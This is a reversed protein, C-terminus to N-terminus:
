VERKDDGQLKGVCEYLQLPKVKGKVSISELENLKYRAKNVESLREQLSHSIIIKKNLNECVSEIRSATNVTDSIVTDDLRNEEGITGVIMKGYHIGIRPIINQGKNNNKNIRESCKAIEIATEIADTESLPFLAMFGGSLFKSVFGNHKKIIPSISELYHNFLMFHDEPLVSTENSNFNMKSFMITMEISSHDGLQINTISDKNLLKLFEKPVFRLYAENLKLLNSSIEETDKYIDNQISALLILQIFIFIVLFFPFLPLPLFSRVKTYITDVIGGIILTGCSILYYIIHTKKKLLNAIIIVIIYFSILGLFFQLLPVLKNSYQAPLVLSLIGAILTSIIIGYRLYKEKFSKFLISVNGVPYLITLMQIMSVPVVWLVLYELKVKLEATLYPMIISLSCYGATSVRLAFVLSIIGLYMYEKRDINISFQIINLLFIFLLIGSIFTYFSTYLSNLSFINKAPGILVSDWLGSKRYFYNNIFVVIEANGNKDPSFEGYVPKIHSKIGKDKSYDPFPYGNQTILERNVYVACSTAPSDKILFGYNNEPTLNKVVYRYCGYIKPDKSGTLDKIKTNWFGPVIIKCDAKKSEDVLNFVQEPTKNIYLDWKGDLKNFKYRSDQAFLNLGKSFLLTIILVKLITNKKM